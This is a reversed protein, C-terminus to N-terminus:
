ENPVEVKSNSIEQQLDKPGRGDVTCEVSVPAIVLGHAQRLSELCFEADRRRSKERKLQEEQTM